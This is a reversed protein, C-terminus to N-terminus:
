PGLAETTNPCGVGGQPCQEDAFETLVTQGDTFPLDIVTGEPTERLVGGEWVVTGCTRCSVSCLPATM